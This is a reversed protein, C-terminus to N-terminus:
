VLHILNVWWVELSALSIDMMPIENSVHGEKRGAFFFSDDYHHDKFVYEVENLSTRKTEIKISWSMVAHMRNHYYMINTQKNM